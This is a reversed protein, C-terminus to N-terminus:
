FRINIMERDEGGPILPSYFSSLEPSHPLNPNNKSMGKPWGAENLVAFASM